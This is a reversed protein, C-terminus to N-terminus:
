KVLWAMEEKNLDFYHILDTAMKRDRAISQIYPITGLARKKSCHTKHAVKEAIATRQAYRQNLRWRTLLRMTPTYRTFTNYKADKSLAIGASLLVNIIALFHWHQRNMIRGRFVDARSLKEYARFLDQPKIYEKPLNEDIWLQIEELDEEVNEFAMRAVFADTTKFVKLLANFITDTRHRDSLVELDTMTLKTNSIVQLDILAGRLDGGARRALSALAKEEYEIPENTCVNRLVTLLTQHSLPSFEIMECATRLQSFKRDWPNNATIIIPFATTKVFQIISPIAGRDFRNLLGDVEDILLLKSKQFLSQQVSAQGISGHLKKEDRFDSSNVELIELSFEKAIAYAASTKGCGPPGYILLARKRKTKFSGIFDRLASVAREQGLIDKTSKPAYKTSLPLM